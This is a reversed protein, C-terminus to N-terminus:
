ILLSFLHFFFLLFPTQNTLKKKKGRNKNQYKLNKLPPPKDLNPRSKHLDIIRSIKPSTKNSKQHNNISMM